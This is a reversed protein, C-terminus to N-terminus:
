SLVAVRISEIALRLLSVLSIEQNSAEDVLEVMGLNLRSHSLVLHAECKWPLRPPAILRQPSPL